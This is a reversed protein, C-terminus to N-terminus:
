FAPELKVSVSSPENSQGVQSFIAKLITYLSYHTNLSRVIDRLGHMNVHLFYIYESDGYFKSCFLGIQMKISFFFHRLFLFQVFEIRLM